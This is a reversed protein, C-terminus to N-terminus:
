PCDGWGGLLSGLDAGDTTGDANLDGAATGWSGLLFGLVADPKCLFAGDRADLGDRLVYVEFHVTVGGRAAGAAM